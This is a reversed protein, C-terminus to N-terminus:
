NAAACGETHIATLTQICPTVNSLTMRGWVRLGLGSCRSATSPEATNESTNIEDKLANWQSLVQFGGLREAVLFSGLISILRCCGLLRSQYLWPLDLRTGQSVPEWQSLGGSPLADCFTGGSEWLPCPGLPPPLRWVDPIDSSGCLRGNRACVPWKQENISTVAPQCRDCWFPVLKNSSERMGESWRQTARLSNVFPSGPIALSLFLVM